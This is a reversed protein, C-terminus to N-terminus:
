FGKVLIKQNEIKISYVTLNPIKPSYPSVQPPALSRGTTVDFKAKHRPCTLVPGELTGLSLDGGLHPCISDVASIVGDINALLVEKGQLVVKKLTGVPMESVEAVQLYTTSLFDAELKGSVHLWLVNNFM